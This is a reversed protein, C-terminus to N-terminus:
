VYIGAHGRTAFTEVLRFLVDWTFLTKSRQSRLCSSNWSDNSRSKRKHLVLFTDTRIGLEGRFAWSLFFCRPQVTQEGEGGAKLKSGQSRAFGKVCREHNEVLPCLTVNPVSFARFCARKHSTLQSALMLPVMQPCHACVWTFLFGIATAKNAVLVSYLLQTLFYPSDCSKSNSIM